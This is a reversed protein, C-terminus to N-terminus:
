AAKTASLVQGALSISEWFRELNPPCLKKIAEEDIEGDTVPILISVKQLKARFCKRGYSYRWIMQNLMAAIYLLTADSMPQLPILVAVDDKAAFRYPHFKTMLPWSGNYAVTLAREYIVDDSVEFYGILGNSTDGCSILPTKGADLESTSHFDGSNVEFLDELRKQKLKLSM